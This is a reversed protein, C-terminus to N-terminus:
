RDPRARHQQRRHLPRRVPNAPRLHLAEPPGIQQVQGDHMLVLRDALAMAETQDHTVM